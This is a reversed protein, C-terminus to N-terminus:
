VGVTLDRDGLVDPDGGSAVQDLAADGAGQASFADAAVNLFSVNVILNNRRGAVPSRLFEM